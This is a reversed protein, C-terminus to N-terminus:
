APLDIVGVTGPVWVGTHIFGWLSGAVLVRSMRRLQPMCPLSRAFAPGVGIVGPSTPTPFTLAVGVVNRSTPRPFAPRVGIVGPPAPSPLTRAVEIVDPSTPSPFTPAVKPVGLSTPTPFTPAVKLVGPSTTPRVLASRPEVSRKASAEHRRYRPSYSVVSSRCNSYLLLSKGDM